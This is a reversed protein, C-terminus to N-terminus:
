ADPVPRPICTRFGVHLHFASSTLFDTLRTCASPGHLEKQINNSTRHKSSVKSLQQFTVSDEYCAYKTIILTCKNSVNDAIEDSFTLSFDHIKKQRSLPLEPIQNLKLLYPQCLVERCPTLPIIRQTGSTYACGLSFSSANLPKCYHLNNM